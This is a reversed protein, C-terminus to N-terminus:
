RGLRELNRLAETLSPDITLARQYDQRAADPLGLLQLAVGRNNYNQADHPDLALARGFEHLAGAANGQTLMVKGTETAIAPDGPALQRAQELLTLAESPPVNRSLQIKPRVKDRAHAVAERWLREDSMWVYTRGISAAILVIAIPMSLRSLRKPIALAAAVAFAALPLYMRRDAALDQAPFISSSPLLLVFGILMWRWRWAIAAIAVWAVLGLWVPPISIAPDVTFGVPVILLRLYRWIVPGQALLYRWPSIGAQIGAPAGPTVATAYIVHLGAALAMGLMTYLALWNRRGEHAQTGNTPILIRRLKTPCTALRRGIPLRGTAVGLTNEGPQSAGGAKLRSAAQFAAAPVIAQGVFLAVPFAACEEKALLGAAFWAVAIWERGRMWEIWAAFCFVAALVISRGWVYDVAEAQIPHVAFIAAAALAAEASILRRLAVYLLWVATVHLALNVAHYGLPNEGGVRYNLWFTLYTLPRTQRLCWWLSHTGVSGFIAYDDFHFGSALSGGFAALAAALLALRTRM